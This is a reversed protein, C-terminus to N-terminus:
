FGSRFVKSSGHRGICYQVTAYIKLLRREIARFHEETALKNGQFASLLKITESLNGGSIIELHQWTSIALMCCQYLPALIDLEDIHPNGLGKGNDLLIISEKYVEYRHRDGNQILFDFIAVDILNLLRRLSLTGKIKMCYDNDTEWEMRKANYSRRWPSKFVKLQKDLYLIAAGEVEGRDNPCVTDNVKCYFCKGYICTSGKDNKVMTKRLGSTAVPIIDKHLHVRRIVSPPIWKFNLVMALYYAFVESNHRDFGAYINGNIVHDLNYRRPKFYVKQNGEMLLLLKLQTGKPANDVLAIQSAQLAHLIKGGMGNEQPYLSTNSIWNEAEVWITAPNANRTSNFSNILKKQISLFKSNKTKYQSPLYNLYEYIDLQSIIKEKARRGNVPFRQVYEIYHSPIGCEYAGLAIVQLYTNGPRRQLPIIEPQMKPPESNIHYVRATIDHGLPTIAKVNKACYKKSNVGEQRDLAALESDKIAWIAGWAEGDADAVITAVAGCWNDSYKDFDLRYGPVKAATIFVASPCNILLRSKLLNSGYAFYLFRAEHKDCDCLMCIFIMLLVVCRM